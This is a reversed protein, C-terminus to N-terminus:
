NKEKAKTEEGKENRTEGSTKCFEPFRADDSLRARKGALFL